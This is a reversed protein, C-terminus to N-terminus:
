LPSLQHRSTPSAGGVVREPRLIKLGMWLFDLDLHEMHRRKPIPFGSKREEFHVSNYRFGRNVKVCETASM